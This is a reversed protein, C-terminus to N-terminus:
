FAMVSVNKHELSIPLKSPIIPTYVMEPCVRPIETHRRTGAKDECFDSGKLPGFRRRDAHDDVM